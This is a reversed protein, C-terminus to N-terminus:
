HFVIHTSCFGRCAWLELFNAQAYISIKFTVKHHIFCLDTVKKQYDCHLNSTYYLCLNNVCSMFWKDRLVSLLMVFHKRETELAKLPKQWFYTLSLSLTSISNSVCLSFHSHFSYVYKIFLPKNQVKTTIMENWEYRRSIFLKITRFNELLLRREKQLIMHKSYFNKSM